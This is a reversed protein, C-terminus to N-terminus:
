HVTEEKHKRLSIKKAIRQIRATIQILKRWSSFREPSIAQEVKKVECIAKVQRHEMEEELVAKMAEQPWFEKPLQLFEPGNKM